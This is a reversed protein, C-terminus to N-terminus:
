PTGMGAELERQVFGLLAEATDSMPRSAGAVRAQMLAGEYAAVILTALQGARVETVGADVLAAALQGRIAEFADALASRIAGDEAASELAVTALPCGREFASRELQRQAGSMWSRLAPVLDGKVAMLHRLSEGVQAVAAQIAAVALETKGGPFHHYLVGKPTQALALLENLGAGHLGRRQLTDSMAAILRERTTPTDKTAPM